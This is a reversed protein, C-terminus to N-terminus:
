QHPPNQLVELDHLAEWLKFVHEADDGSDHWHRICKAADIVKEMGKVERFMQRVSAKHEPADFGHVLSGVRDSLCVLPPQVVDKKNRKDPTNASM